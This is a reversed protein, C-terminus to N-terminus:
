LSNKKAKREAARAAKAAKKARAKELAARNARGRVCYGYVDPAAAVEQQRTGAAKLLINGNGRDIGVVVRRGAYKGFQPGLVAETKVWVIRRTKPAPLDRTINVSVGQRRLARLTNVAAHQERTGAHEESLYKDAECVLTAFAPDNSLVDYQRGKGVRRIEEVQPVEIGREFLVEYFASPITTLNQNM